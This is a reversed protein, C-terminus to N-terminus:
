PLSSLPACDGVISFFGGVRRDRICTPRDVRTSNTDTSYPPLQNLTDIYNTRHLIAASAVDRLKNAVLFNNSYRDLNCFAPCDSGGATTVFM